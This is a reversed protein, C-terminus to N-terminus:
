EQATQLGFELGVWTCEAFVHAQPELAIKDCDKGCHRGHKFSWNKCRTGGFSHSDTLNSGCVTQRPKAREFQLQVCCIPPPSITCFEISMIRTSMSFEPSRSVTRNPANPHQKQQKQQQHQQKNQQRM